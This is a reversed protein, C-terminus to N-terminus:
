IFCNAFGVFANMFRKDIRGYFVWLSDGLWVSWKEKLALVEVAFEFRWM